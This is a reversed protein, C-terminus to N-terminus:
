SYFIILRRRACALQRLLLRTDARGRNDFGEVNSGRRRRTASALRAHGLTLHHRRRAYIDAHNVRSQMGRCDYSAGPGRSMPRPGPREDAAALRALCFHPSVDYTSSASRLALMDTPLPFGAGHPYREEMTILAGHNNFRPPQRPM